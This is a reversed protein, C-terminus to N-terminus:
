HFGAQCGTRHATGAQLVVSFLFYFLRRPVCPQLLGWRWWWAPLGQVCWLPIFSPLKAEICYRQVRSDLHVGVPRHNSRKEWLGEGPAAAPFRAPLDSHLHSFTFDSIIPYLLCHPKTSSSFTVALPLPRSGVFDETVLKQAAM